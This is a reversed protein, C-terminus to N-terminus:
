WGGGETGEEGEGDEGSNEEGDGEGAGLEKLGGAVLSCEWVVREWTRSGKSFDSSRFPNKPNMNWKGHSTEGLKLLSQARELCIGSRINPFDLPGELSVTEGVM